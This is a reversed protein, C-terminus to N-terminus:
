AHRRYGIACVRPFVNCVEYLHIYRTEAHMWKVFDLHGHVCALTFARSHYRPLPVFWKAVDWHGNKCASLFAEDNHADVAVNGFSVLWQAIDLHGNACASRFAAEGQAHIDVGLAWVRQATVL